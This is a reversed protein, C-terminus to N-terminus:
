LITQYTIGLLFLEIFSYTSFMETRVLKLMNQKNHKTRLARSKSQNLCDALDFDTLKHFTKYLMILIM